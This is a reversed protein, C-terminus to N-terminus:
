GRRALQTAAHSRWLTYLLWSGLSGVHPPQSPASQGAWSPAKVMSGHEYDVVYGGFQPGLDQLSLSTGFLM